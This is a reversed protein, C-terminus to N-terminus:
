GKESPRLNVLGADMAAMRRLERQEYGQRIAPRIGGCVVTLIIGGLLLPYYVAYPQGLALAILGAILSMVGFGVLCADLALVFRRAMGCGALTGILGGLLGIITGGIAGIWGANRESWWGDKQKLLGEASGANYQLLKLPSLYVTGRDAFVVNVVIRTPLGHKEDSYFPISFPRWDSSGEFSQMPGSDGSTRSFYMGGDPFWSWMELYGKGKVDNYRISGEMAYHFKSVNPHQLDLLTVTKPQNTPNDIKLQEHPVSPGGPEIEGVTLQGSQKLVTWSSQWALDQALATSVSVWVVMSGVINLRM